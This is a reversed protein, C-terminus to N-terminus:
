FIEVLDKTKWVKIKKQKEFHKDDSWIDSGTALAAAIFPTDKWDISDMVERAEKIKSRVLYDDLIAMKSTIKDLTIKMEVENFNGKKLLENKHKEIEERSFELTYLKADIHIILKRTLSDKLLASILVNTDVILKM